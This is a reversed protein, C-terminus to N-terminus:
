SGFVSKDETPVHYCFEIDKQWTCSENESSFLTWGNDVYSCTNGDSYNGDYVCTAAISGCLSFDIFEISPKSYTKRKEINKEM